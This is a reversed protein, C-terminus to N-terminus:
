RFSGTCVSLLVECPARYDSPLLHCVIALAAGLLAARKARRALARTDNSQETM